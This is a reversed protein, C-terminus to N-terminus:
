VQQTPFLHLDGEIEKLQAEAKMRKERENWFMLDKERHRNFWFDSRERWYDALEMDNAHLEKILAMIPM